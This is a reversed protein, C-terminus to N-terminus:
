KNKKSLIMDSYSNSILNEKSIKFEELYKECQQNLKEIGINNDKDIAEVEIFNGLNKVNDIHFKVNGIFYIERKKDVTVKVGLAKSLIEKINSNPDINFLTVKSEKPGEKDNREYHILYNEIKGERLKLRGNEVNFYTDKQYDIGIFKANNKRLFDRIVSTDQCEAKFEINLHSM